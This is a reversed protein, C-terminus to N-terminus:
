KRADLSDETLVNRESTGRSDADVIVGGHNPSDACRVLREEHYYRSVYDLIIRYKTSGNHGTRKHRGRYMEM